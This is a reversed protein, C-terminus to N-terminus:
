APSAKVDTRVRVPEEGAALLRAGVPGTVRATVWGRQGAALCASGTGVRTTGLGLKRAIGPSVQSGLDVKCAAACVVLAHVGRHRLQRASRPAKIDIVRLEPSGGPTPAAAPQPSPVPAPAPEPTPEPVPGPGAEGMIAAALEGRAAALATSSVTTSHGAVDESGFLGHVIGM